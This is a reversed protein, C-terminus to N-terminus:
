EYNESEGCFEVNCIELGNEITGNHANARACVIEGLEEASIDGEFDVRITFYKTEMNSNKM